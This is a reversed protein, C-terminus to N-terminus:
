SFVAILGIALPIKYRYLQSLWPMQKGVGYPLLEWTYESAGIVKIEMVTFLYSAAELKQTEFLAEDLTDFMKSHLINPDSTNWFAVKYRGIPVSQM